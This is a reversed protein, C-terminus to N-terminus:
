QAAWDPTLIVVIPSHWQALESFQEKVRKIGPFQRRLARAAAEADPVAPDYYACTSLIDNQYNSYKTVTWGGAEFQASARQALGTITTNNLVVLPVRASAAPSSASPSSTRAGSATAGHRAPTSASGPTVAGSPVRSDVPVQSGAEVTHRSPGRLAIVAVVLV